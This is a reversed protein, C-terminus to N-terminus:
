WCGWGGSYQLIRGSKLSLCIMAGTTKGLVCCEFVRNQLLVMLCWLNGHGGEQFLSGKGGNLSIM